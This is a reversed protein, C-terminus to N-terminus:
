ERSSILRIIEDIQPQLRDIRNNFAKELFVLESKTAKSERYARQIWEGIGLLITKIDADSNIVIPEDDGDISIFHGLMEILLIAFKEDQVNGSLYEEVNTYSCNLALAAQMHIAETVKPRLLKIAKRLKPKQDGQIM